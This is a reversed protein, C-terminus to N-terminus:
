EPEVLDHCPDATQQFEQIDSTDLAEKTSAIIAELLNNEEGEKRGTGGFLGLYEGLLELAKLKDYFKIKWGGATKEIAAIAAASEGGTQAAPLLMMQGEEVTVVETARTLGIAALEAIVAEPLRKRKRQDAKKM